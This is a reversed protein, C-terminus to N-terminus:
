KSLEELSSISFGAANKHGGGGFKKAVSSVDVGNEKSRLSFVFKDGNWYYIAAYPEDESLLNGLESQFMSSNLTLIDEQGIRLRYSRKSLSKVLSNKYRLIAAGSDFISQWDKSGETQLMSNLYNWNDFTKKYSDVASLIEESGELEWKWLDRDEVYSILLPMEETGFLYEWALYAGSHAMDFHCYDLGRLDEEATKHHDLVVLSEASQRMEELIVRPYSFDVIFVSKGTVDPYPEGYRVPRYEAKKGYKQYFAWASGFGDPCGAHYLVLTNSM